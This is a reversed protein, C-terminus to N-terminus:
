LETGRRLGIRVDNGDPEKQGKPSCGTLSICVAATLLLVTFLKQRKM